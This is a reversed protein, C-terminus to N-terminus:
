ILDVDVSCHNFNSFNASIEFTPITFNLHNVFLRVHVAINPTESYSIQLAQTVVGLQKLRTPLVAQKRACRTTALPMQHAMKRM